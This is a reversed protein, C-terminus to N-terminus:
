RRLVKFPANLMRETPWSHPPESQVTACVCFRQTDPLMDNHFRLRDHYFGGHESHSLSPCVPAAESRVIELFGYVYVEAFGDPHIPLAEICRVCALALFLYDRFANLLLSPVTPLAARIPPSAHTVSVSFYGAIERLVFRPRKDLTLKHLRM